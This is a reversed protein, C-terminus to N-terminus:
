QQKKLRKVSKQIVITMHKQLEMLTERVERSRIEAWEKETLMGITMLRLFKDEEMNEIVYKKNDFEVRELVYEKTEKLYVYSCIGNATYPEGFDDVSGLSVSIVYYFPRIKEETGLNYNLNRLGTFVEILRVCDGHTPKTSFDLTIDDANSISAASIGFVVFFTGIVIRISM